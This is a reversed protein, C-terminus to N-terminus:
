AEAFFKKGYNILYSKRFKHCGIQLVKGLKEITYYLVKQGEQLENHSLALYFRKGIELPIEVGKSTEFRQTKSNYRIAQYESNYSYIEFNNFKEAKQKEERARKREAKEAERKAYEKVEEYNSATTLNRFYAPVSVGLASAFLAVRSCIVAVQNLYKEPKRAKNLLPLIANIEREWATFNADIFAKDMAFGYYERGQTACPIMKYHSCASLMLGQHKSTTVSYRELTYFVMGNYIRGMAFHRGYSYIIGNSEAIINCNRVEYGQAWLHCVEYNSKM